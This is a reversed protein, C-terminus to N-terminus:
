SAIATLCLVGKLHRLTATGVRLRVPDLIPETPHEVVWQNYKKVWAVYSCSPHHVPRRLRYGGCDCNAAFFIEVPIQGCICSEGDSYYHRDLYGCKENM